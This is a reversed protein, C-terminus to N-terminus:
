IMGKTGKPRSRASSNLRDCDQRNAEGQCKACVTRHMENPLSHLMAVMAKCKRCQKDGAQQQTKERKEVGRQAKDLLEALTMAGNRAARFAALSIVEEDDPDDSM